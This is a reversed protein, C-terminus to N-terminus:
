TLLEALLLTHWWGCTAVRPVRGELDIQSLINHDISLVVNIHQPPNIFPWDNDLSANDEPFDDLSLCQKSLNPTTYGKNQPIGMKVIDDMSKQGPASSWVPQYRFYPQSVSIDDDT